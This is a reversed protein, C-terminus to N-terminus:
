SLCKGYHLPTMGEGDRCNLDVDDGMEEVMFKLLDVHGRDCVWHIPFLGEEDVKRLLSADESVMSKVKDTVGEKCWDLFM